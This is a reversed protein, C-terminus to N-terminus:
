RRVGLPRYSSIASWSEFRNEDQLANMLALLYGVDPGHLRGRLLRRDEASTRFSELAAILQYMLDEVVRARDDVSQRQKLSYVRAPEPEEKMHQFVEHLHAFQESLVRLTEAVEALRDEVEDARTASVSEHTDPERALIDLGTIERLMQRNRGRPDSRGRFYDGFTTKPIGLERAAEAKSGWRAQTRWWANLALTVDSPTRNGGSM